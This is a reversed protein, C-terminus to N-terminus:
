HLEFIQNQPTNKDHLKGGPRMNRRWSPKKPYWVEKNRGENLRHEYQDGESCM